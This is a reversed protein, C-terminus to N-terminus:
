VSRKINKNKSNKELENLQNLFGWKRNKLTQSTEHRASNYYVHVCLTEIIGENM